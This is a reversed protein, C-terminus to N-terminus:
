NSMKCIDQFSLKDSVNLFGRKQDNSVHDGTGSARSWARDRADRNARTREPHGEVSYIAHTTKHHSLMGTAFKGM